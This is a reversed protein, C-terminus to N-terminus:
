LDFLAQNHQKNDTLNHKSNLAKLIAKKTRM